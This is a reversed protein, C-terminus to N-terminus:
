AMRDGGSSLLEAELAESDWGERAAHLRAQAVSPSVAAPGGDSAPQQQAIEHLSPLLSVPLPTAM